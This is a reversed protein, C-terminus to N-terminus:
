GDRGGPISSPLMARVWQTEAGLVYADLSIGGVTVKVSEGALTTVLPLGAATQPTVPGIRFIGSFILVNSGPAVRDTASRASERYVGYIGEPPDAAQVAPLAPLLLAVSLVRVVIRQQELSM